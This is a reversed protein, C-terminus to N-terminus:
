KAHHNPPVRIKLTVRVSDDRLEIRDVLQVMRDKSDAENKLRRSLAYTSEIIARVDPSRVESSELVKLMGARDELIHQAAILVQRQSSGTILMPPWLTSLLEILAATRDLATQSLTQSRQRLGRRKRERGRGRATWPCLCKGKCRICVLSLLGKQHM